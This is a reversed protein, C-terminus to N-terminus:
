AAFFPVPVDTTGGTVYRITERAFRLANRMTPIVPHSPAGDHLTANLMLPLDLPGIELHEASALGPVRVRVVVAGDVVHDLDLDVMRSVDEPTLSQPVDAATQSPIVLNIESLLRETVVSPSLEVAFGARHKDANSFERLVELPHPPFRDDSQHYPQVQEIRGVVDESVENLRGRRAKAWEARDSLIPFAINKAAKQSVGQATGIAHVANDLASRTDEVVARLREEFEEVPPAVPIRAVYEVAGADLEIRPEFVASTSARFTDWAESVLTLAADADRLKRIPRQVLGALPPTSAPPIIPM